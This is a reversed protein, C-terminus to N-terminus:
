LKKSRKPKKIFGLLESFHTIISEGQAFLAFDRNNITEEGTELSGMVLEKKDVIVFFLPVMIDSSEVRYANKLEDLFYKNSNDPNIKMWIEVGKTALDDLTKGFNKHFRVLDKEKTLIFVASKAKNLMEQTRKAIEEKDQISWFNEKQINILTLAEKEERISELMSMANEFEVLISARDTLDKKWNQVFTCFSEKPTAASFGQTKGPIELVIGRQALKKLAAYAKTRPVGSAMSVKRVESPGELILSLYIRAEYVSLGANILSNEWKSVQRKEITQKIQEILSLPKFPKVIYGDAGLNLSRVANEMTPYGTIVISSMNPNLKKLIAILQTGEIDPLKIDILAVEFNEKKCLTIAEKGSQATRPAFGEQKLLESLMGRLSLDDDVVLIKASASYNNQINSHMVENQNELM